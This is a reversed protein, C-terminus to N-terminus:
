PLVTYSVALLKQNSEFLTMYAVIELSNLHDKPESALNKLKGSLHLDWRKYPEM